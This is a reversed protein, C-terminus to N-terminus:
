QEYIGVHNRILYVVVTGVVEKLVSDPNLHNRISIGVIESLRFSFM